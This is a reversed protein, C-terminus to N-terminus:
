PSSANDPQWHLQATRRSTTVSMVIGPMFPKLRASRMASRQGLTLIRKIVPNLFLQPIRRLSQAIPWYQLFGKRAGVKRLLNARQQRLGSGSVLPPHEGRGTNGGLILERRITITFSNFARHDGAQQQLPM